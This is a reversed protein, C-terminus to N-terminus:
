VEALTTMQKAKTKMILWDLFHAHFYFIFVTSRIDHNIGITFYNPFYMLWDHSKNRIQLM